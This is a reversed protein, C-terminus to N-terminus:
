RCYSGGSLLTAVIPALFIVSLGVFVGIVIEKWEARQAPNRSTMLVFGAYATVIVGFFVAIARITDAMGTLDM